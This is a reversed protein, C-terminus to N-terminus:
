PRNALSLSNSAQRALPITKAVPIVGRVKDPGDYPYDVGVISYRGVNGFLDVADRGTRHGGLIILVPLPADTAGDRITRFSVQLGSDSILRVSEALQGYETISEETAVTEIQGHREGFWDDRPRGSEWRLWILSLTITLVVILVFYKLM